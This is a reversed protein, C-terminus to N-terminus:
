HGGPPSDQCFSAANSVLQGQTIYKKWWLYPRMSPISSLGYYSYMLVHIFSNLTAGFYATPVSPIPSSSADTNQIHCTVFGLIRELNLFSFFFFTKSYAFVAAALQCQVPMHGSILKWMPLCGDLPKLGLTLLWTPIWGPTLFWGDREPM